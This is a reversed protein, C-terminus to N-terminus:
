RDAVDPLTSLTDIELVFIQRDLPRFARILSDEGYIVIKHPGLVTHPAGHYAGVIAAIEGPNTTSQQPM